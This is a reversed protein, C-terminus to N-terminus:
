DLSGIMATLEEVSKEELQKDQKQAIVELIKQKKEANVRKEVAAQNEAKRVEIIHLVIAFKTKLEESGAPATAVFSVEGADKIQKNLTIAINDLSAQSAKGTQLPLDWLDEVSLTGQLSPFRLKQRTAQIFLNNTDM